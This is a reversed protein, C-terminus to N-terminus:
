TKSGESRPAEVVRGLSSVISKLLQDVSTAFEPNEMVERLVQLYANAVTTRDRGLVYAVETTRAPTLDFMLYILLRRAEPLPVSRSRGLVATESCNYHEAVMRLAAPFVLSLEYTTAM